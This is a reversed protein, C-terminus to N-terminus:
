KKMHLLYNKKIEIITKYETEFGNTITEWEKIKKKM